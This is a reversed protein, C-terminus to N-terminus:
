STLQKDSLYDVLAQHGAKANELSSYNCTSGSLSGGLVLSEFSHEGSANLLQITSLTVEAGESEKFTDLFLGQSSGAHKLARVQALNTTETM